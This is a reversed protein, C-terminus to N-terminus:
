HDEVILGAMPGVADRLKSVIQDFFNQPVIEAAAIKPWSDKEFSDHVMLVEVDTHEGGNGNQAAAVTGYDSGYYHRYYAYEPDEVNIGNLFLESFQVGSPM